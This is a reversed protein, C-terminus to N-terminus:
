TRRPLRTEDQKDIKIFLGEKKNADEFLRITKAVLQAFIVELYTLSLKSFPSWDPPDFEVKVIDDEQILTISARKLDDM